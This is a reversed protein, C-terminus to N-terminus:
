FGRVHRAVLKRLSESTNGVLKHGLSKWGIGQIFRMTIVRRTLSDDIGSIYNEIAIREQILKAQRKRLKEVIIPSYGCVTVTTETYPYELLSGKVTDTYKTKKQEAIQHQLETIEATLSRYQGLRELTMPKPKM